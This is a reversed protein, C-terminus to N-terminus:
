EFNKLWNGFDYRQIIRDDVDIYPSQIFKKLSQIDDKGLIFINNNNYFDYNSINKDNTILKKKHFLSEMPRLTLGTQGIQVFDLIAKCKSIRELILTYDIPLKYEYSVQEADNSSSQTIHYDVVLEQEEFIKKLKLLENLRGKDAGVFFIDNTITNQPLQLTSFYYSSVYKMNYRKCDEPDFSYIEADYGRLTDPYVTKIVPNWYWHVIKKNSKNRIYKAVALNLKSAKIIFLDYENIYKKWDDFFLAIKSPGLIKRLWKGILGTEKLICTSTVNDYKNQEIHYYETKPNRTLFLVKKGM